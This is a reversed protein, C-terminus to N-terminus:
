ATFVSDGPMHGHLHHVNQVGNTLLSKCVIQM